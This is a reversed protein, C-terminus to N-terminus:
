PLIIKFVDKSFERISDVKFIVLGLGGVNMCYDNQGTARVCDVM